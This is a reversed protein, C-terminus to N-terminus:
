AGEGTYRADERDMDRDVVVARTGIRGLSEQLKRAITPARHRGGTCGIGITLTFRGEDIFHPVLFGVLEGLIKIYEQSSPHDMVYRQIAQDAGTLRRLSEDYHPNPLFRVDLIIDADLPIGFKYGFSILRVTLPTVTEDMELVGRIATRLDNLTKDSTDITLSAQMRLEDLLAREQQIAEGVGLEPALPHPRRAEKYRRVLVDDKADFFIVRVEYGAAELDQLVRIADKFFERARIDIGLAVGHIERGSHFCLELFKDILPLPLNDVCFYGLDEFIRLASSKGAGSLGTLVFIQPSKGRATTGAPELSPREAVVPSSPESMPELTCGM